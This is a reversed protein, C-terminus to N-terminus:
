RWLGPALPLPTLWCRSRWMAGALREAMIGSGVVVAPLLATGLGESVLRRALTM